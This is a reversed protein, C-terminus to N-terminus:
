CAHAPHSYRWKVKHTYIYVQIAAYFEWLYAIICFFKGLRAIGDVRPLVQSKHSTRLKLMVIRVYTRIAQVIYHTAHQIQTSDCQNQRAEFGSPGTIGRWGSSGAWSAQTYWNSNWPLLIPGVIELGIKPDQKGRQAKWIDDKLNVFQNNAYAPLPIM